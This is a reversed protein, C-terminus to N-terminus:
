TQNEIKEELRLTTMAVLRGHKSEDLPLSVWEGPEPWNDIHVSQTCLLYLTLKTDNKKLVLTKLGQTRNGKRPPHPCHINSSSNLLRMAQPIFSSQLRTTCSCISRYIKGSPLLTFLSHSPPHQRKTEKTSQASTEIWWHRQHEASPVLSTRPPKLWRSYLRGTRPWLSSHWNTFNGTLIIEIAGRYFNTLTM